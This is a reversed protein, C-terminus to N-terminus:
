SGGRAVAPTDPAPAAAGTRRAPTAPKSAFVSGGLKEM